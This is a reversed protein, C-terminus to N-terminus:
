PAYRTRGVRGSTRYCTRGPFQASFEITYLENSNHSRQGHLSNLGSSPAAENMFGKTRAQSRAQNRQEPASLLLVLITRAIKAKHAM